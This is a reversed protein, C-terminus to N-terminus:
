PLIFASVGGTATAPYVGDFPQGPAGVLSACFGVAERPDTHSFSTWCVFPRPLAASVKRYGVRSCGLNIIGCLVHHHVWDRQIESRGHGISTIRSAMWPHSHWEKWAPLLRLLTLRRLLSSSCTIQDMICCSVWVGTIGNHAALVPNLDLEMWGSYHFHM